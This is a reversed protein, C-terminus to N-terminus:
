CSTVDNIICAKVSNMENERKLGQLKGVSLVIGFHKRMDWSYCAFLRDYVTEYVYVTYQGECLRVLTVDASAPYRRFHAIFVAIKEHDVYSVNICSSV